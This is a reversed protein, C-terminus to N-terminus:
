SLDVHAVEVQGLGHGSPTSSARQLAAQARILVDKAFLGHTPYAAVGAVLRRISTPEHSLAIQLREATWVGGEESTDELILGFTDESLRCAIDAERLTQRMLGAFSALSKDRAEETTSAPDFGLQVLVISVPWLHRRAAAVRGDVAVDFFRGDPLETTNDIVSKDIADASLPVPADIDVRGHTEALSGTHHSPHSLAILTTGVITICGGIACLAAVLVLADISAIAGILGLLVGTVGLGLGIYMRGRMVQLKPMELRPNLLRQHDNEAGREARM